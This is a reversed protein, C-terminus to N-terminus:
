VSHCRNCVAFTFMALLRPDVINCTQRNSSMGDSTPLSQTERVYQHQWVGDNPESKCCRRHTPRHEEIHAVTPNDQVVTFYDTPVVLRSQPCRRPVCCTNNGHAPTMNHCEGSQRRVGYAVTRERYVRTEYQTVSVSQSVPLSDSHISLYLTYQGPSAVTVRAASLTLRCPACGGRSM